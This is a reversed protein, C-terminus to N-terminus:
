CLLCLQDCWIHHSSKNLDNNSRMLVQDAPEPASNLAENIANREYISIWFYIPYSQGYLELSKENCPHRM